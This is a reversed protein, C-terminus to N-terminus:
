GHHSENFCSRRKLENFLDRDETAFDLISIKEGNSKMYNMPLKGPYAVASTTNNIPMIVSLVIISILTVLSLYYKFPNLYAPALNFGWHAVFFTYNIFLVELSGRCPM